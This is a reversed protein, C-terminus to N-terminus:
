RREEAPLVVEIATGRGDPGERASITGGMAEVFGKCISLGLGAGAVGSDRQEARQFLDFVRAREEAPIGPGQDIVAIYVRGQGAHAEVRIPTGQPSYKAANELLNVL